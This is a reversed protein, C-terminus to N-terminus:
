MASSRVQTEPPGRMRPARLLQDACAVEGPSTRVCLHLITIRSLTPPPPPPPLGLTPHRKKQPTYRSLVPSRPTPILIPPALCPPPPRWPSFYSSMRSHRARPGLRLPSPLCATHSLPPRATCILTPPPPPVLLLLPHTSYNSQRNSRPRPPTAHPAVLAMLCPPLLLLSGSGCDRHPVPNSTGHRGSHAAGHFAGVPSRTPSVLPRIEPAGSDLGPYNRHLTVV